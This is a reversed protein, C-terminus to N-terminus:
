QITVWEGVPYDIEFQADYRKILTVDLISVNNDGDIDAHDITVWDALNFLALYRQVWAADVTDVAGNGDVDGLYYGNLETPAETPADTPTETPADTPAETPPETPINEPDLIVYNFGNNEAFLHADTNYYVALTITNNQFATSSITTVSAPIELYLLNPCNAFAYDGIETVSNNLTVNSLATCNMFCQNPVAGSTANFVVTDISSSGQFAGTGIDIVNSPITISGTVNTCGSFAFSGIRELNSAGGFDIMRIATNDKLANNRIDVLKRNNLTDPIFAVDFEDNDIGYLSVLDNNIYTYYYGFYYYISLAVASTLTVSLAVAAICLVSIMRIFNKKMNTVLKRTSIEVSASM